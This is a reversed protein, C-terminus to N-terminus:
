IANEKRLAAIVGADMELVERLVEDTHQGLTPAARTARTESRSYRIPSAVTKISGALPHPLDYALERAQAQPDAFVQDLTNIPGCPVGVAELSALWHASTRAAILDRILPVLVDRHRVRARNTAYDPNDALDPRGATEAFRRFQGDNGVALIIHGDATAFAEYPVINPHANGLRGPVTGGVLYNATQNALAAVTTDFLAMDIHQGENSVAREMLAAQIAIVSYLGTMVDSLAVGVKVPGGGPESDPKGTVSMLGAMGQIMFDYGARKAYPGTQGFGTISCYVLRPNVAALSEYDLGYKALGGMKYNEILVDSVAALKRIIDQGAATTIDVTVSRKGRNASTFYAAEATENGQADNLYPPGWGRTDDGEGPREIKIVDAGLDALAQGAWPGALIRSMDLVRIGSLPHTMIM